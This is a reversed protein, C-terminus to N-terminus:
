VHSIDKPVVQVAFIVLENNIVRRYYPKALVDELQTDSTQRQLRVIKGSPLGDVSRLSKSKTTITWVGGSVLRIKITCSRKM